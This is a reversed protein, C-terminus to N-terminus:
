GRSVLFVVVATMRVEPSHAQAVKVVLAMCAVHLAAQGLLSVFTSRHFVSRPPRLPSMNETTGPSALALHLPQFMLSSVILPRQPWRVRMLYLVSSTYSSFLAHLAVMQYTHLVAAMTCRYM